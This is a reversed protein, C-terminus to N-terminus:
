SFRTLFLLIYKVSVAEQVYAKKMLLSKAALADLNPTHMHPDFQSPMSSGEYAGISPRLDDIILFLVNKKESGEVATGHILYLSIVALLLLGYQTM